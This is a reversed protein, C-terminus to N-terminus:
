LSNNLENQLRCYGLATPRSADPQALERRTCGAVRENRNNISRLRWRTATGPFVDAAVAEAEYDPYGPRSASGDIAPKGVGVLATRRAEASACCRVHVFFSESTKLIPCRRHCALLV